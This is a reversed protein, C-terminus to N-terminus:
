DPMREQVYRKIERSEVLTLAQQSIAQLETYVASRILKKIEPVDNASMSLKDIGMGLLLLVSLPDSAMAGCVGVWIGQEHGAAIVSAVLRLIAPHFPDYLGAVNANGRDVALTYQILDNTGISFFDAEKALDRAIVAASPVEIMIGVSLEPDYPIGERDLEEKAHRLIAKAKRLEELGSIMPFMVRLNGGASARLIARLQVRFMEPRELCIRIGRFGLAPNAEKEDATSMKDAGVDLTRIIVPLPAMTEAISRYAEYQEEESPLSQRMLFLFETRYLGIGGAGHSLADAVEIPLEINASLEVSRGDLTVAPLTHFQQLEDERAAQQTQSEEFKRMTESSPNIYVVGSNGDLVLMVGDTIEQTAGAVGVVAPIGLGRAVIATHSTSGGVDTIFGRVWLRDIDATDSPSLNHAVIIVPEAFTDIRLRASGNLKELVRHRIDEFDATRERFFPNQITSLHAIWGCMVDNFIFDVTKLEKKVRAITVGVVEPDELVAQHARFIHSAEEGIDAAIRRQLLSLDSLAEEIASRFRSLEAEVGAPAIDRAAPTDYSRNLLFARGIRIGPSATIGTLTRSSQTM